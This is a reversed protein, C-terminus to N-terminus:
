HRVHEPRGWGSHVPVWPHPWGPGSHGGRGTRYPRIVQDSSSGLYPISGCPSLSIPIQTPRAADASAQAGLDEVLDRKPGAQALDIVHMEYGRQAGPLGAMLGIPGAGTVLARSRRFFARRSIQDVQDWAKALVSASELLVGLAGLGPLIPVAFDPEVRWHESGYGHLRVIGREGFSDTRCM